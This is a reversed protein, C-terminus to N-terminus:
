ESRRDFFDDFSVPGRRFTGVLWEAAQVAGVAFIARSRARHVLEVSEEPGEFVVIHEGPQGGHRLSVVPINSGGPRGGRLAAALLRATGSPADKKAVHHREVIAPEFEEFPGLAEAIAAVARRLAAVGISFNPAHLFGVGKQRALDWAPAVNWGTTGSVVPVGASLLEVVRAPASEPDTFELAVEAERALDATLKEGRGLRGAVVHGRALLAEGVAKGMKGTGVILAKM